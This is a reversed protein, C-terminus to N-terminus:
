MMDEANISPTTSADDIGEPEQVLNYFNSGGPKVHPSFCGHM